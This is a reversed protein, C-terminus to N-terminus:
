KPRTTMVFTNLRGDALVEQVAQFRVLVYFRDNHDIEGLLTVLYSGSHRGGVKDDRCGAHGCVKGPLVPLVITCSMEVVIPGSGLTHLAPPIQRISETLDAQSSMPRSIAPCPFTTSM